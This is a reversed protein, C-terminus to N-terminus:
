WISKKNTTTGGTISKSNIIESTKNLIDAFHAPAVGCVSKFLEIDGSLKSIM